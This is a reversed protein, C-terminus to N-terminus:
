QSCDANASPYSTNMIWKGKTEVSNNYYGFAVAKVTINQSQTCNGDADVKKCVTAKTGKWGGLRDIAICDNQSGGSGGCTKPKPSKGDGNAQWQQFLAQFQAWNAYQSKGAETKQGAIHISVHGGMATNTAQDATSDIVSKTARCEAAQAGAITLLACAGLRLLATKM